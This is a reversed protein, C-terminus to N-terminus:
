HRSGVLYADSVELRNQDVESNLGLSIRRVQALDLHHNPDPANAGSPTLRAFPVFVAHWEGDAPVFSAGNIYGAPGDWLFVRAAARDKLKARLVIGQAHALDMGEPLNFSPYAWRDVGRPYNVDMVWGGAETGSLEVTTGASASKTWRKLDGIPLRTTADFRALLRPLETEGRFVLSLRDLVRGASSKERAEVTVVREDSQDFFGDLPIGWNAKAQGGAAVPVAVLLDRAKEWGMIARGGAAPSVMESRRATTASGDVRIDLHVSKAEEGLNWVSVGVPLMPGGTAKRVQYGSSTPTVQTPDFDYRLVLGSPASPAPTRSTAHLAMAATRAEVRKLAADRPLRAYVLGDVVRVRGSASATLPRGDLGELREVPVGLSLETPGCVVAVLYPDAPRGFVRVAPTGEHPAQDLKLDGLYVTHGLARIAQAYAALSRLPTSERGLLGFNNTNEEYFPLVFAFYRDVGCARAEITKRAMDQASVIDDHPGPRDSGKPWPRGCETIWLSRDGHGSARLWERYHTVIREM